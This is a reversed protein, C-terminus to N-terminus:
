NRIRKVDPSGLGDALLMSNYVLILIQDKSRQKDLAMLFRKTAQSKKELSKNNTKMIIDRVLTRFDETSINLDEYASDIATRLDALHNAYTNKTKTLEIM